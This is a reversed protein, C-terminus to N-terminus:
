SDLGVEVAVVIILFSLRFLRFIPFNSFQYGYLLPGREITENGDECIENSTNLYFERWNSM